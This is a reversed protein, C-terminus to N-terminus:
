EIGNVRVCERITEKMSKTSQGGLSFEARMAVGSVLTAVVAVVLIYYVCVTCSLFLLLLPLPLSSFLLLCSFCAFFLFFVKIFRISRQTSNQIPYPYPNPKKHTPPGQKNKYAPNSRSSHPNGAVKQMLQKISKQLM